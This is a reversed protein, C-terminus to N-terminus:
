VVVAWGPVIRRFRGRTVLVVGWCALVVLALAGALPVTASDDGTVGLMSYDGQGEGAWSVWDRNGAM